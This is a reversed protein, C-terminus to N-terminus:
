IVVEDYEAARSAPNVAVHLLGKERRKICPRYAQSERQDDARRVPRKVISVGYSPQFFEWARRWSPPILFISRPLTSVPTFFCCFVATARGQQRAPSSNLKDREAPICRHQLFRLADLDQQLCLHVHRRFRAWLSIQCASTDTSSDHERDFEDTLLVTSEIKEAWHARKKVENRKTLCHIRHANRGHVIETTTHVNERNRRIYPLMSLCSVNKSGGTKSNCIQARAPILEQLRWNACCVMTNCSGHQLLREGREKSFHPKIVFLSLNEINNLLLNLWNTM